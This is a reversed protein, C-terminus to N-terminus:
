SNVETNGDCPEGIKSSKKKSSQEELLCFQKYNNYKRDLYVTANEYLLRAVKRAKWNCYSLQYAQNSWNKCSKNRIHGDVGLHKCVEKLFSETGVFDVYERAKNSKFCISLSGDGDCYGRIFDLILKDSKFISVDPFKVILSKAPICGKNCLQKWLNYNRVALRCTRKTGYDEFRIETEMNLFKRLKEMHLVDKDCLNIEFRHGHSSVNGDAFIFGLWYAKEETDITDFVTQNIRCRNQYNIVEHGDMKLYKSITQRKVGFKKSIKTLSREVEPTNLYENVAELIVKKKRETVM